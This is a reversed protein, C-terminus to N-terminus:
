LNLLSIYSLNCFFIYIFNVSMPSHHNNIVTAISISEIEAILEWTSEHIRRFDRFSIQFFVPRTGRPFTFRGVITHVYTIFCREVRQRKQKDFLKEAVRTFIRPAAKVSCVSRFRYRDRCRGRATRNYKCTRDSALLSQSLNSLQSLPQSGSIPSSSSTTAPKLSLNLPADSDNVNNANSSTTYASPASLVSGNTSHAPLKIVEVRDVSDRYENSDTQPFSWVRVIIRPYM